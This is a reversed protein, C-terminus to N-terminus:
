SSEALAPGALAMVLADAKDAGGGDFRGFDHDPYMKRIMLFADKKALSGNGLAIKRASTVRGEVVILGNRKCAIAAAAQYQAVIRTAQANREVSLFEIAALDPRNRIVWGSLWEFFFLLREPASGTKPRHWADTSVLEGGDLLAVGTCSSSPDVGLIKM